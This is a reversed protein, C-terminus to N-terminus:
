IPRVRFPFGMHPGCWLSPGTPRPWTPCGVHPGSPPRRSGRPRGLWTPNLGVHSLWPPQAGGGGIYPPAGEGKSAMGIERERVKLTTGSKPAANPLPTEGGYEVAMINTSRDLEEDEATAATINTSRDLM